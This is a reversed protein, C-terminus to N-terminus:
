AAAALRAARKTIKYVAAPPLNCWVRGLCVADLDFAALMAPSVPCRMGYTFQYIAGDDDLMGLINVLIIAVKRLPFNLLPLGSVIAGAKTGAGLARDAMAEADQHLITAAPFRTSLRDALAKDAEILILDREAVNRDLLARTFVGTGPGLEIVLGTDDQIESTILLALAESSPAIAGFRKPNAIFRDLAIGLDQM